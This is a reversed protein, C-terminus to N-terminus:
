KEDLDAIAKETLELGREIDEQKGNKVGVTVLNVDGQVEKLRAREEPHLRALRGIANNLRFIDKLSLDKEAEGGAVVRMASIRALYFSAKLEDTNV